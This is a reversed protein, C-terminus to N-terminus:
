RRSRRGPRRSRRPGSGAGGRPQARRRPGRRRRPRSTPCCAGRAMAAGRGGGAVSPQPALHLNEVPQGRDRRITSLEARRPWKTSLGTTAWWPLPYRETQGFPGTTGVGSQHAIVPGPGRVAASSAALGALHITGPGSRCPRAQKATARAHRHPVTGEPAKTHATSRVSGTGLSDAPSSSNRRTSSPTSTSTAWGPPGIQARRSEPAQDSGLPAMSRRRTPARSPRGHTGRPSRGRPAWRVPSRGRRPGSAIRCPRGRSPTSPSRSGDAIRAHPDLDFPRGLCAADSRGRSRGRAQPRGPSARRRRLGAWAVNTSRRSSTRARTGM